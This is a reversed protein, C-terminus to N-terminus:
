DVSEVVETPSYIEIQKYGERKNIIGTMLITKRKVIHQFNYSVIIDLDNVTTVAIHTADTAYKQPIVGESVYYEALTEAEPSIALIQVNHKGILAIMDNRLAEDETKNLEGIVYASTYPEYKREAIEEFLRIADARKDPADDVFPFNFVTTELYIKPVRM